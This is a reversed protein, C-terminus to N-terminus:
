SLCIAANTSNIQLSVDSFRCWPLVKVGNKEFPGFSCPAFSGMLIALLTFTRKPKEEPVIISCSSLINMDDLAERLHTKRGSIDTYTKRVHLPLLKNLTAFEKKNKFLHDFSYMSSIYFASFNFKVALDNAVRLTSMRIHENKNNKSVEIDRGRMHVCLTRNHQKISGSPSRLMRAREYLRKWYLNGQVERMKVAGAIGCFNFFNFITVNTNKFFISKSLKTGFVRREYREAKSYILTRPAELETPFRGIRLQCPHVADKLGSLEKQLVGLLTNGYNWPQFHFKCSYGTDEALIGASIAYLLQNGLGAGKLSIKLQARHSKTRSFGSPIPSLILFLILFIAPFVFLLYRFLIMISRSFFLYFIFLVDSERRRYEGCEGRGRSSRSCTQNVFGVFDQVFHVGGVRILVGVRVVEM